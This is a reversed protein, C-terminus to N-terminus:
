RGLDSRFESSLREEHSELVTGGSEIGALISPTPLGSMNTRIL